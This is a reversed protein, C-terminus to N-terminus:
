REKSVRVVRTFLFLSKGKGALNDSLITEEEMWIKINIAPWMENNKEYIM